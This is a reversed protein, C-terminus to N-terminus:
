NKNGQKLGQGAYMYKVKSDVLKLYLKVYMRVYYKLRHWLQLM